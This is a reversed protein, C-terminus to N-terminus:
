MGGLRGPQLEAPCGVKRSADLHELVEEASARAAQINARATALALTQGTLAQGQRDLEGLQWAALDLLSAAERTSADLLELDARLAAAAESAAAM